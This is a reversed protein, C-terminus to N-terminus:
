PLSRPVAFFLIKKSVRQHSIEFNGLDEAGYVFFGRCHRALTPRAIITGSLHSQRNVRAAVPIESGADCAGADVVLFSLSRRGTLRDTSADVTIIITPQSPNGARVKTPGARGCRRRANAGTGCTVKYLPTAHDISIM